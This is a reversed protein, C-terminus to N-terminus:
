KMSLFIKYMADQHFYGPFQLKKYLALSLIIKSMLSVSFHPLEKVVQAAVWIRLANKKM